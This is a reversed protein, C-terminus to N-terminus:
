RRLLTRTLQRAGTALQGACRGLTRVGLVTGAPASLFAGAVALGIGLYRVLDATPDLM